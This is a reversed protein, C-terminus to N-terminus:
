CTAEIFEVNGTTVRWEFREVNNVSKLYNGKKKMGCLSCRKEDIELEYEMLIFRNWGCNFISRRFNFCCVTGDTTDFFPRPARAQSPFHGALRRRKRAVWERQHLHPLHPSKKSFTSRSYTPLDTMPRHWPRTRENAGHGVAAPPAELRESERERDDIRRHPLAAGGALGCEVVTSFNLDTFTSLGNVELGFQLVLCSRYGLHLHGVEIPLAM